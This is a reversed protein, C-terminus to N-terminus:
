TDKLNTPNGLYEWTRGLQFTVKIIQISLQAPQVARNNEAMVIQQQPIDDKTGFFILDREDIVLIRRVVMLREVDSIM